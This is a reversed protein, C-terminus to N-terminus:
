QARLAHERLKRLARQARKKAAEVGCGTAAAIEAMSFGACVGLVIVRRDPPDLHALLRGATSPTPTAPRRTDAEHAVEDRMTRYARNRRLADRCVNRVVSYFWPAFPSGTRYRRRERVLRLFSEQLADDCAHSDALYSRAITLARGSYRRVLERAARHDLTRSYRAM